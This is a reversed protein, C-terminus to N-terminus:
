ASKEVQPHHEFVEINGDKGVVFVDYAEREGDLVWGLRVMPMGLVVLGLADPHDRPLRKIDRVPVHGEIFRGGIKAAPCSAMVEAVNNEIKFTTLFRGTRDERAVM